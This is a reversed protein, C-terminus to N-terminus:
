EAFRYTTHFILQIRKSVWVHVDLKGSAGDKPTARATVRRKEGDTNMAAGTFDIPKGSALTELQADTVDVTLTGKENYFFYPFVKATYSASFTDGARVFTPMRMSVTGIYISTWTPAVEVKSWATEPTKTAPPRPETRAAGNASADAVGDSGAAAAGAIVTAPMGAVWLVLVFFLLRRVMPPVTDPVNLGAVM